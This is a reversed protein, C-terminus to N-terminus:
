KKYAELWEIMDKCEKLIDQAEDQGIAKKMEELTETYRSEIYYVNLRDLQDTQEQSLEEYFSLRKALRRM